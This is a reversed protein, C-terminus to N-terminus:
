PLVGTTYTFKLVVGLWPVWGPDLDLGARRIPLAVSDLPLRVEVWGPDAVIQARRQCVWQVVDNSSVPRGDSSPDGTAQADVRAALLSRLVAAWVRLVRREVANVDSTPNHASETGTMGAFALIAPDNASAAPAVARALALVCWRLSRHQALTSSAMAALLPSDGLVHVLFLLGGWATVEVVPALTGELPDEEAVPREVQGSEDGPLEPEDRRRERPTIPKPPRAERCGSDTPADSRAREPALSALVAALRTAVGDFDAVRGLSGTPVMGPDSDLLVLAATALRTRADTAFVTPQARVVRTLTGAPTCIGREPIMVEPTTVRAAPLMSVLGEPDGGAAMWAASALRWWGDVVTVRMVLRALREDPHNALTGVVAVISEPRQECAAVLAAAQGAVGDTPSVGFGLQRWAWARRDDGCAVGTAFDILAAAPNRYRVVDTGAGSIATIARSSAGMAEGLADALSRSWAAIIAQDGEGLRLRVPIRLARICVDEYEAIGLRALAPPLADDLTTRLLRDLRPRAEAERHVGSRAPPLHYRADLREIHIDM